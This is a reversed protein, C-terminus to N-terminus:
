VAAFRGLHAIVQVSDGDPYEPTGNNLRESDLRYWTVDNLSASMNQKANDLRVYSKRREVPQIGLNEAEELTMGKLTSMVRGGDKIAAAGRFTDVDGPGAQANGKRTHHILWVACDAKQAIQKYASMVIGIETNDNENAEHSHVFPDIVLLKTKNEKLMEIFDPLDPSTKLAGNIRIAAKFPVELASAHKFDIEDRELNLGYSRLIGFLRRETEESPDETNLYLVGGRQYVKEHENPNKPNTALLSKGSAVSLAVVLALASKGTGGPAGLMSPYGIILERGYLWRRPGIDKLSETTAKKVM